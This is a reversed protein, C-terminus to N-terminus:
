AAFSRTDHIRAPATCTTAFSSTVNDVRFVPLWAHMMLQARLDFIPELFGRRSWGTAEWPIEQVAHDGRPADVLVALKPQLRLRM